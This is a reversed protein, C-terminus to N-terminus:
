DTLNLYEKRLWEYFKAIMLFFVLFVFLDCCTNVKDYLITLEEDTVEIFHTIETNEETTETNEETTSVNEEEFSSVDESFVFDLDSFKFYIFNDDM